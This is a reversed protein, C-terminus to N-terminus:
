VKIGGAAVKQLVAKHLWINKEASGDEANGSYGLEIALRRRADVSSDMDLLKLLDVISDRWNLSQGKEAARKELAVDMTADSMPGVMLGLIANIIERIM